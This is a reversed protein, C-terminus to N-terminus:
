PMPSREGVGAVFWPSPLDAIRVNDLIESGNTFLARLM